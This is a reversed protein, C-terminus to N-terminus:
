FVVIQQNHQLRGALTDCLQDTPPRAVASINSLNFQLEGRSEQGDRLEEVEEHVRTSEM